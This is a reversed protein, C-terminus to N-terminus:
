YDKNIYTNTYQQKSSNKYKIANNPCHHLCALCQTCKKKTWIPQNNDLIIASDPCNKMCLGCGVCKDSTSFHIKRGENYLRRGIVTMIQPIFGKICNFNGSSNKKIKDAIENIEKNATKLVVDQASKSIIPYSLSYNNVMRIAFETNKLQSNEMLLKSITKGANGTTSGCNLITFCYNNNLNTFKLEEIFKEVISPITCFYVPVVFGINENEQLEFTYIGKKFADAISVVEINIKKAVQQAIYLSNGTGSFYFIM